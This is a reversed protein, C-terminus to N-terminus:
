RRSSRQASANADAPAPLWRFALAGAALLAAITALVALFPDTQHAAAASAVVGTFWQMVAVGLFMAMTFVAMARGTMAAPYAAKVDAYQLVIYGSALGVVVCGVVDLTAGPNFAMIAFLAAVGLTFGVIWQRRVAGPDLRGFLMPGFMGVVSVIVAVNGSQVLSFGHREILLPGLWLGRLTIFAAYTVTALAVIGLTHPLRFLAGYSRLAALPSPRAVPQGTGGAGNPLAPERVLWLIALWSLASSAGLVWFGTRWSTAQVLWALPTGTLLMGLSGLGLTLGSVSAFREAPFQRAIFVTCVLFAPACGIGILVQGFVLVPFGTALASVAAGLIALPFAALVTRRVGQLDIGIGMFLQLAGFAFHFAGAFLGLAQASLGFEAQLPTALIAAITRYAQSLTFASALVALMLWSSRPSHRM